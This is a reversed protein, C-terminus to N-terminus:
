SDRSLMTTRFETCALSVVRHRTRRSMASSSSTIAAATDAQRSDNAFLRLMASTHGVPYYGEYETESPNSSFDAMETVFAFVPHTYDPRTSWLEFQKWPYLPYGPQRGDSRTVAAVVIRATGDGDADPNIVLEDAGAVSEAADVTGDNDTDYVARTMDGQASATVGALAMAALLLVVSVRFPVGSRGLHM